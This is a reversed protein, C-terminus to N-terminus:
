PEEDEEDDRGGQRVDLQVVRAVDQDVSQLQQIEALEASALVVEDYLRLVSQGQDDPDVLSEVQEGVQEDPLPGDDARLEVCADGSQLHESRLPDEPTLSEAQQHEIDQVPVPENEKESDTKPCEDRLRLCRSDDSPFRFIDSLDGLLTILSSRITLRFTFIPLGFFVLLKRM